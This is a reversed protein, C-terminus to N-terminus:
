WVVLKDGRRIMRHKIINMNSAIITDMSQGTKKAVSWLSDGKKVVYYESPTTIKKGKLLGKRVQKKYEKRRLVSRRPREYLDAYMNDRRSQGQRFPLLVTQGRSFVTRLKAKNLWQLVEPRKIKFKRAIDRLNARKGRIKYKQFALATLDKSACCKEYVEKKGTPVRLEYSDTWPPTFWRLIEPNLRQIRKFPTGLAKSLAVLDQGGKVTILDFDLQDHFVIDDLGFSKLNKGIIALAMIKPIYSRTERKLYRGRRIHWFNETKYRRIARRVKGEGANYSAAALEWSSFNKYLENLYQAAARTAKLPDRREDVYWDIHLGFRRGTYSMFQWPGVAKAWSKAKNRFGSEAMALFVLDRPLNEEELIKGLVPAYRGSRSAYRKFSERGRGLFYNIWGKVSKNYVVPIDFYYNELNLHEAGYLFYTKRPYESPKKIYAAGRIGGQNDEQTTAVDESPDEVLTDQKPSEQVRQNM